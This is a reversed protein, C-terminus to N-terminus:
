RGNQRILTKIESFESRCYEKLDVHKEDSRKMTAQIRSSLVEHAQDNAKGREHCVDRFVLDDKCPHKESNILHKSILGWATAIGATLIGAGWLITRNDM